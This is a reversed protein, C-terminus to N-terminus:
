AFATAHSKGKKAKEGSVMSERRKKGEVRGVLGQVQERVVEGRDVAGRTRWGETRDVCRNIHAQPRRCTGTGDLHVWRKWDRM